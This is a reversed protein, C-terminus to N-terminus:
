SNPISHCLSDVYVIIKVYLDTAIIESLNMGRAIDRYIKENKSFGQIKCKLSIAGKVLTNQFDANKYLSPYVNKISEISFYNEVGYGDLEVYHISTLGSNHMDNVIDKIKQRAKISGDDGDVVIVVQGYNNILASYNFDPLNTIGGGHLFKIDHTYYCRHMESKKFFEEFVPIDTKGETIILIDAHMNDSSLYGLESMIIAKEKVNEVEIGKETRRVLFLSDVYTLDLFVNSHTTIFFLKNGQESFFSLLRRQLEPHLHSEPEELLVIKTDPFSAIAMMYLLDRLGLGMADAEYWSDDYADEFYLSVLKDDMVLDFAYGGSLEKFKRNLNDYWVRKSDSSLCNKCEFLYKLLGKSEESKLDYNSKINRKAEILRINSSKFKLESFLSDFRPIESIDLPITHFYEGDNDMEYRYSYHEEIDKFLEKVNLPLKLHSRNQEIYKNALPITQEIEGDYYAVWEQNEESLKLFEEQSTLPITDICYKLWEVSVQLKVQKLVTTKGSNNKGCFVNIRGLSSISCDIGREEEKLKLVKDSIWM